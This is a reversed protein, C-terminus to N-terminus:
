YRPRMNYYFGFKIPVWEDDVHEPLAPAKTNNVANLSSVDLPEHGSAHIVQVDSFSGDQHIKFTVGTVGSVEYRAINPIRWNGKILQRLIALYEGMDHRTTEVTLGLFDAGSGEPNHYAETNAAGPQIAAADAINMERIAATRAQILEDRSLRRYPKPAHPDVVSLQGKDTKTVQELPSTEKPEVPEDPLAEKVEEQPEDPAEEQPEEPASEEPEAEAQEEQPPTEIPMSEPQVIRPSPQQAQTPNGAQNNKLEYSDGESQPELNDNESQVPARKQRNADSAFEADNEIEEEPSDSFRFKLERKQEEQLAQLRAIEEADPSFPKAKQGILFLLALVLLALVGSTRLNFKPKEEERFHYAM